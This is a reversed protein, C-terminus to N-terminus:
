HKMWLYWSLKGKSTFESIEPVWKDLGKGSFTKMRCLGHGSSLQQASYQMTTTDLVLTSTSSIPSSAYAILLSLPQTNTLSADM